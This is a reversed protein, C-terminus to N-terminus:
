AASGRRHRTPRIRHKAPRSVRDIYGVTMGTGESLALPLSFQRVRINAAFDDTEVRVVDLPDLHPFPVATFQVGLVELLMDDLLAQARKKAEAKSRVHDNSAEHVLYRPVNDGDSNTRGLRIPSLPHKKPAVAAYEVAKKHGKPKGGRFWVTNKIETFDHSVTVPSTINARRPDGSRFTAVPRRPRIRLRCVGSGDYFLQRNLSRAIARCRPWPQASRGLSIGKPIRTALDPIDFRTEGAGAGMIKRIADTKRAGKKVNLPRWIWGLALEEKGHATVQVQAGTREFAVIPGTFVEVDVRDNLAPVLVSYVVQLMRDAYLAGDDPSESDIQLSHTRDLLTATLVRTVDAEADVDVQGDIIEPSIRSLEDGDLTLVAVDISISHPDALADLFARYDAGTLGVDRV